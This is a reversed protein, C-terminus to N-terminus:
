SSKETTDLRVYRLLKSRPILAGVIVFISSIAVTIPTCGKDNIAYAYRGDHEASRSRNQAVIAASTSENSQSALGVAGHLSRQPKPSGVTALTSSREVGQRAHTVHSTPQLIRRDALRDAGDQLTALTRELLTGLSQTDRDSRRRSTRVSRTLDHDTLGGCRYVTRLSRM